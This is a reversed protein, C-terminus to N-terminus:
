FYAQGREVPPEWECESWPGDGNEKIYSISGEKTPKHTGDFFNQLWDFVYDHCDM